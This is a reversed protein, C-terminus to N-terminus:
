SDLCLPYIFVRCISQNKGDGSQTL